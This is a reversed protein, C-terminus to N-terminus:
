FAVLHENTFFSEYFAPFTTELASLVLTVLNFPNRCSWFYNQRETLTEDKISKTQTICIVGTSQNTYGAHIWRTIHVMHMQGAPRWM